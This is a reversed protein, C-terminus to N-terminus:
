RPYVFKSKLTSSTSRSSCGIGRYFLVCAGCTPPSFFQLFFFTNNHKEFNFLFFFLVGALIKVERQRRTHSGPRSFTYVAFTCWAGSFIPCRRCCLVACKTAGEAFPSVNEPPQSPIVEGKYGHPCRM